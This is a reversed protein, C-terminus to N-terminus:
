RSSNEKLRGFTHATSRFQLEHISWYWPRCGECLKRAFSMQVGALREFDRVPSAVFMLFGLDLVHRMHVQTPQSVKPSALQNTCFSVLYFMIPFSTSGSWKIETESVPGAHTLVEPEMFCHFWTCAWFGYAELHLRCNQSLSSFASHHLDEELDLRSEGTAFESGWLLEVKKLM